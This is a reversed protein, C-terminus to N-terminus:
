GASVALEFAVRPADSWLRELRYFERQEGTFAHVVVDGYDLLIWGTEKAGERREPARGGAKLSREVESAVTGLQRENAASVIVFYDTIGLLDGLDLITIDQAKKDAAASAAALALARSATTDVPSLRRM